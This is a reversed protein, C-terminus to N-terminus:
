PAAGAGGGGGGPIAVAKPRSKPVQDGGAAGRVRDVDLADGLRQPGAVVVDEREAALLGALPQQDDAVEGGLRLGDADAQEVAEPQGVGRPFDVAARELTILVEDHQRGVLVEPDVRSAVPRKYPTM